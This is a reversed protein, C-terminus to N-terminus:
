PTGFSAIGSVEIEILDGDKINEPPRRHGISLVDGPYLTLYQSMRSIFEHVGFIAAKASYAYTKQDNMQITVRLADPDLGTFSRRCRSSPTPTRGAGSHATARHWTRESVDNGITHGLVYNLAEADFVHKCRDGAVLEREYQV